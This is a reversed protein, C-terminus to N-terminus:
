VERVDVHVWSKYIKVFGFTKRAREAVEKPTIGKIKIDAAKGTMHQSKRAGGVAENHLECRYGSTISVAQGFYRRLEELLEILKKDVKVEGCHKCAFESEKFHESLPEASAHCVCCLLIILSVIIAPLSYEYWMKKILKDETERQLKILDFM